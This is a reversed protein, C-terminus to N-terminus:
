DAKGTLRLRSKSIKNCFVMSFTKFDEGGGGGGWTLFLNQLWLAAISPLDTQLKFTSWASDVLLKARNIISLLDSGGPLGWAILITCITGTSFTPAFGRPNGPPINASAVSHHMVDVKIKSNTAGKTM